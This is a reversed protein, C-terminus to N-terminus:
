IVTQKNIPGYPSTPLYDRNATPIYFTMYPILRRIREVPEIRQTNKNFINGNDTTSTQNSNKDTHLHSMSAVVIINSGEACLFIELLNIIIM